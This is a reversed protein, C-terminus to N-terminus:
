APLRAGWTGVTWGASRLAQVGRHSVFLLLFLNVLPIWACFAILMDLPLSNWLSHSVRVAGVMGVGGIVLLLLPTLGILGILALSSRPALVGVAIAVLTAALGSVISWLIMRQGGAIEKQRRLDAGDVAVIDAVMATPAAYPNRDTM